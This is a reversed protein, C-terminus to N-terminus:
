PSVEQLLNNLFVSGRLNAVSEIVLSSLLSEPTYKRACHGRSVPYPMFLLNINVTIAQRRVQNHM